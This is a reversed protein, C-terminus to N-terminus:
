FDAVFAGDEAVNFCRINNEAAYEIWQRAYFNNIYAPIIILDVFHGYDPPFLNEGVIIACNQALNQNLVHKSRKNFIMFKAGSNGKILLTSRVNEGIFGKNNSEIENLRKIKIKDDIGMCLWHKRFYFEYEKRDLVDEATTLFMNAGGSYLGIDLEKRSHYVIIRHNSLVRVNSRINITLFLCITTLSLVAFFSKKYKVWSVIFWIFILLIFTEPLSLRINKIISFPLVNIFDVWKTLVETLFELVLCLFSGIFGIASFSIFLISSVVILFVVPIVLLNSLWFYTPFQNFYYISIPFTALQAALSVSFLKFFYDPIRHSFSIQKNFLPVFFVIGAVAAYSLQFGVHFILLPNILLNILASAAILNYVSTDRNILRGVAFLSFMTAARSVSPSFGTLLAYGWIVLLIMGTRFIKLSKNRDCFKLLTILFMYIIGVHLGSIALIHVVGANTFSQLTKKDLESRDGILLALILQRTKKTKISSNVASLVYRRISNISKAFTLKDNKGSLIIIDNKSLFTQFCVRNIQQFLAFDFEDPNGNNSIKKLNNDFGVIIGPQFMSISQTDKKIYVNLKPKFIGQGSTNLQKMQILISNRKIVPEDLVKGIVTKNEQNQNKVSINSLTLWLSLVFVTTHIFFDTLKLEPKQSILFVTITACLL